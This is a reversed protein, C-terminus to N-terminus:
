GVFVSHPIAIADGSGDPRTPVHPRGALLARGALHQQRSTDNYMRRYNPKGSREPQVAQRHDRLRTDNGQDRTVLQHRM